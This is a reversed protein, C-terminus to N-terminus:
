KKKIGVPAKCSGDSGVNLPTGDRELAALVNHPLTDLNVTYRDTSAVATHDLTGTCGNLYDSVQLSHLEVRRGPNFGNDTGDFLKIHDVTIEPHKCLELFKKKVGEITTTSGM